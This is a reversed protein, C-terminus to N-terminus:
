TVENQRARAAPCLTASESSSTCCVTPCATTKEVKAKIIEEAKKEQEASLDLKESLANRMRRVAHKGLKKGMGKGHWGHGGRGEGAHRGMGRASLTGAAALSVGLVALILLKTNM